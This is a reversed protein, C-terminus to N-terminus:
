ENWQYDGGDVHQAWASGHIKKAKGIMGSIKEDILTNDKHLIKCVAGNVKPWGKIGNTGEVTLDGVLTIRGGRANIQYAESDDPLDETGWAMGGKINNSLEIYKIQGICGDKIEELGMVPPVQVRNGNADLEFIPKVNYRPNNSNDRAVMIFDGPELQLAELGFVSFSRPNPMPMPLVIGGIKSLRYQKWQWVRDSFKLNYPNNGSEVDKIKM